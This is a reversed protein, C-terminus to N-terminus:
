QCKILNFMTQKLAKATQWHLHRVSTYFCDIMELVKKKYIAWCIVWTWKLLISASWIPFVLKIDNAILCHSKFARCTMGSLDGLSTIKFLRLIGSGQVNSPVNSRKNGVLKVSSFHLWIHFKCLKCINFLPQCAWLRCISATALLIKHVYM